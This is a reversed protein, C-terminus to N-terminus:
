RRSSSSKIYGWVVLGGIVALAIIIAWIAGKIVGGIGFILVLIVLVLVPVLWRREQM